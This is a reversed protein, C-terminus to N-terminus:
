VRGAPGSTREVPVVHTRVPLLVEAAIAQGALVPLFHGRAGLPIIAAILLHCFFFGRFLIFYSSRCVHQWMQISNAVHAIFIQRHPFRHMIDSNNSQYSQREGKEKGNENTEFESTGGNSSSTPCSVAIERLKM